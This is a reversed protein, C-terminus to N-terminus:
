EELPSATIAVDPTYKVYEEFFIRWAEAESEAKILICGEFDFQYKKM